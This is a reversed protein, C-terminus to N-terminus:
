PRVIKWLAALAKAADQISVRETTASECQYIPTQRKDASVKPTRALNSLATMYRRKLDQASLKGGNPRCGENSSPATAYETSPLSDFCNMYLHLAPLTSEKEGM